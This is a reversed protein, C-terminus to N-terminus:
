SSGVASALNRVRQAQEVLPRVLDSVANPVFSAQALTTGSPPPMFIAASLMVAVMSSAVGLSTWHFTKM